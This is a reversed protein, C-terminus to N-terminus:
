ASERQRRQYRRVLRYVSALFGYVADRHRNNQFQDWAEAVMDLRDELAKKRQKFLMVETTQPSTLEPPCEIPQADAQSDEDVPTTHQHSVLQNHRLAQEVYRDYSGPIEFDRRLAELHVQMRKTLRDEQTAQQM